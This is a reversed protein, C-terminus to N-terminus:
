LELNVYNIATFCHGRANIDVAALRCGWKEVVIRFCSEIELPRLVSVFPFFVNRFEPASPDSAKGIGAEQLQEPTVSAIGTRAASVVDETYEINERLDKKGGLAIHGPVLIEFDLKLIDKQAQVYRGLDETLGFNFPPAYRPFVVDVYMVIGPEGKFPPIYIRLDSITHGGVIDMRVKLFRSMRLTRGRKGIIVNPLVSRNSKSRQIVDYTELTSWIFIKAKPYKERLFTFVLGSSGIHDLHAHSYVMDIRNPVTGNLLTTIANTIPSETVTSLAADPFDFLTLHGAVKLMLTNYTGDNYVWVGKRLLKLDFTGPEFPVSFAEPPVPITPCTDNEKAKLICQVTEKCEESFHATPLLDVSFSRAFSMPVLSLLIVFSVFIM